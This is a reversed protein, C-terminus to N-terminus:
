IESCVQVHPVTLPFGPQTNTYRLKCRAKMYIVYFVHPHNFIYTLCWLTNLQQVRRDAHACSLPSAFSHIYTKRDPSHLPPRFDNPHEQHFILHKGAGEEKAEVGQASSWKGSMSRVSLSWTPALSCFIGM